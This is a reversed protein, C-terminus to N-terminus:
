SARGYRERLLLSFVAPSHLLYRRALRRPDHSLRYLWELGSRQMWPPARRAAGALFELSAGICLGTGSARGTAAITAALVEQQPSGVALFIFRAPHSLVFDVTTAFAIRDSLIRDASRLARATGLLLADGARVAVSHTARRHHCTGGTASTADAVMRHSRQRPGRATGAVWAPPRRRGGRALGAAAPRRQSLGAGTGSRTGTPGPSRREADGRLQVTGRGAARGATGSGGDCRSRWLGAGAIPREPDGHRGGPVGAHRVFAGRFLTAHCRGVHTPRLLAACEAM